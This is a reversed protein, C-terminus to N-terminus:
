PGVRRYKGLLVDAALPLVIATEGIVVTERNEFLHGILLKMAAIIDAPVTAATAGYGAKWTVAVADSRRYASPWQQYPKLGVYSGIEDTLLEYISASLTQPANNADFYAIGVIESAIGVPLRMMHEFCAFKREWTQTLLARGLIGGYGDLHAEAAGILATLLADEDSSDIHSHLKADALTVLTLAPPAATRVPRLM